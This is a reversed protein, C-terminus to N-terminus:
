NIDDHIILCHRLQPALRNLRVAPIHPIRNKVGCSGKHEPMPEARRRHGQDGLSSADAPHHQVLVKMVDVADQM